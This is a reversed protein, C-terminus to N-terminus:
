INYFSIIKKSLKEPSLDIMDHLEIRTGLEFSYKPIVGFNEIRKEPFTKSVLNNIISDFGGRGIFAEELTVIKKFNKITNLLTKENFSTLNFMDIITINIKYKLLESQIKFATHTMYGTSILAIDLGKGFSNFGIDLDPKTLTYIPELTQADLRLYKIGSHNSCFNFLSSSTHHDSPSLININALSRMISIDEYTQHTPGSVVYSYGAGVGILNVNIPKVENLLSLCVRIQELCRMTLFTSIGYAFVKFGELAVGASVNILNQEAIGVNIFREPFDKAIDDLVPSGFDATIFFISQDIKMAEKLTILFSDRMALSKGTM